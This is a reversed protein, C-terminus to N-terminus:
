GISAMEKLYHYNVDVAFIHGKNVPFRHGSDLSFVAFPFKVYYDEYRNSELIEVPGFYTIFEPDNIEVWVISGVSYKVM